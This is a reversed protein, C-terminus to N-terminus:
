NNLQSDYHCRFLGGHKLQCASSGWQWWYSNHKNPSIKGSLSCEHKKDYWQHKRINCYFLCKFVSLSFCAYTYKYNKTKQLSFAFTVSSWISSWWFDGLYGFTLALKMREPITGYWFSFELSRNASCTM